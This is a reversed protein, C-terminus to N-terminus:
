STCAAAAFAESQLVEGEALRFAILAQDTDGVAAWAEAALDHRIATQRHALAEALPSSPDSILTAELAALREIREDVPADLAAAHAEALATYDDCTALRRAALLAERNIERPATTEPPTTAGTQAREGSALAVIAAIAILTTTIAIVLLLLGV